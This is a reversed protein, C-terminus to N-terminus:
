DDGPIAEGIEQGVRRAFRWGELAEEWMEIEPVGRLAALEAVHRLYADSAFRQVRPDTGEYRSIEIVGASVLKALAVQTTPEGRERLVTERSEALVAGMCDKLPHPIPM